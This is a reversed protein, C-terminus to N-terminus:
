AKKGPEKNYYDITKLTITGLDFKELVIKRANKGFTKRLEESEIL